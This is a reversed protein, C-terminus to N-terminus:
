GKRDKEKKQKKILCKLKREAKSKSLFKEGDVVYVFALEKTNLDKFEAITLSYPSPLAAGDNIYILENILSM